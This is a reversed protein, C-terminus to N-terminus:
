AGQPLRTLARPGSCASPDLPGATGAYEAMRFESVLEPDVGEPVVSRMLM